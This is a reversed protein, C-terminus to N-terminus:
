RSAGVHREIARGARAADRLAFALLEFHYLTRTARRQHQRQLYAFAQDLARLTSVEVIPNGFNDIIWFGAYGADLLAQLRTRWAPLAADDAGFQCSVHLMPRMAACLTAAGALIAAGDAGVDCSILRLRTAGGLAGCESVAADIGPLASSGLEAHQLQVNAPLGGGGGLEQANARLYAFRTADKEIALVGLAPRASHLTALTAGHGAGAIVALDGDDLVAALAAPLRQYLKHERQLAPLPHAAPLCVRATGVRLVQDDTHPTAMRRAPASGDATEALLREVGDAMATWTFKRAQVRGRSVLEARVEPRQVFKLLEFMQGEEDKGLDIYLTAPGGVEPLSSARSTIAPCECAMAELVPLGFGEYRSPYVLSIAGAYACRLDLDDLLVVHVEADGALARCQADLEGGGTCVISYNRREDGFHAFGAFFLQANKYSTRTGSTMFYPRTIRHRRKFDAVQEPTPPAFDCGTYDVQIDVPRGAFRQFDRATSESIATFKKAYEFALTKQKWMPYNMDAGLVEPIMDYVMGVSPTTLPYSYYSSIFAAAGVEDCAQQVIRRDGDLDAYNLAPADHYRIGPVRPATRARDIVVLRRGFETPAWLGLLTMWVRAIGTRGLQFFVGDVVIPSQSNTM